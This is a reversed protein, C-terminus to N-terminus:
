SSRRRASITVSRSVTISYRWSAICHTKTSSRSTSRGAWRTCRWSTTPRVRDWTSSPGTNTRPTWTNRACSSTNAAASDCRTRTVLRAMVEMAEETRGLEDYARSMQYLVQDNREYNPYTDLIKQYTRLAELPGLPVAEAVGDPALAPEDDRSLLEASMDSARQEFDADSEGGVPKTAKAGGLTPEFASAISMTEHAEMAASERAPPPPPAIVGYERELQLDALRRMAEPTLEGKPTENLYNRYSQAARELSDALYVEEVDAPMRDLEALTGAVRPGSACGALLVLSCVAAFNAHKM